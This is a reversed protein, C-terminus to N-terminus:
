PKPPTPAPQKMADMKRQYEADNTARFAREYFKFVIRKDDYREDIAAYLKEAEVYNKMREMLKAKTELGRYSYVDAAMDAVELAKKTNNHDYYYNVLWDVSNSVGVRGPALDVAKQYAEVAQDQRDNKM